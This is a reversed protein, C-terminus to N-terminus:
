LDGEARIEADNAIKDIPRDAIRDRRTDDGRRRDLVHHKLGSEVDALYQRRQSVRGAIGAAEDRGADHNHAVRLGTDVVRRIMTQLQVARIADADLEIEAPM